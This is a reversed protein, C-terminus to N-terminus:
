ILRQSHSFPAVHACIGGGSPANSKLSDLLLRLKSVLTAKEQMLTSITANLKAAGRALADDDDDARLNGSSADVDDAADSDRPPEDADFADLNGVFDGGHEDDGALPATANSAAGDRTLPPSSRLSM